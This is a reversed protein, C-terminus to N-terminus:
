PMMQLTYNPAEKIIKVDHPHAERVGASSIRVFNGQRQLARITRCGCYGLAAKLGGSFQTMVKELSGSFPVIGEVGQPILEDERADAQGYRERSGLAAKMAALSGMGRYIVYQRGQHIIKEGPSQDTGALASGMMVTDAGAAIAKPVDGSYRIGGDAIIPIELRLARACEYIATIQPIGVGAIVRTTCISGPGIGVKVADAGAKRLAQAAEGTAINGAVVDIAPFRKKIWRCMEIVGRSHGHATDIIVVDVDKAALAQIRDQDDPGIAAGVRLRHRTDRNFLPKANEILTSVDSFSYLGVLRGKHILPLKGIKHRRMIEYSQRLSTDPGGTIVPRTMIKSVQINPDSVFKMDASTLIGVLKDGADLIPFGSFTFKKEAKVALVTGLTDPARFTIPHRILGNLYHKVVEVERSQQTIDMNKHIIGIGGLMAMAIAMKSETVTDMAASVFPISVNIRATLRSTIDADKPLFDAHRPILSVDDFTIGEHPRSKM